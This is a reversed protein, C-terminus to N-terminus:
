CTLYLMNGWFAGIVALIYCSQDFPRNFEGSFLFDFVLTFCTLLEKSLGSPELLKNDLENFTILEELIFWFPFM